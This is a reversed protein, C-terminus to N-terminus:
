PSLRKPYDVRRGRRRLWGFGILATGFIALSAPEPSSTLTVEDFDAQTSGNYLIELTIALGDLGANNNNPTTYTFTEDEWQGQGPYPVTWTDLLTSGAFFEITPNAGWSTGCYSYRCGAYIGLTYTANKQLTASLTQSVTEASVSDNGLYLVQNGNPVGKGSLGDSTPCYDDGSSCGIYPYYVGVSNASGTTTVTWDPVTNNTYGGQGLTPMEFSPNQITLMSTAYAPSSAFAWVALVGALRLPSLIGLRLGSILNRVKPPM